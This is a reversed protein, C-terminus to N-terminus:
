KHKSLLADIDDGVNKSLSATGKTLNKPDVRTMMGHTQIDIIRKLFPIDAALQKPTMSDPIYRAAEEIQQQQPAYGKALVAAIHGRLDAMVQTWKLAEPSNQEKLKIYPTNLFQVNYRPFEKSTEAALDLVDKTSQAYRALVQPPGAEEMRSKAQAGSKGGALEFEAQNPNYNPDKILAQALAKAAPGRAKIMSNPLPNEKRQMAAVLADTEDKTLTNAMASSAPKDLGILFKNLVPDGVEFGKKRIEPYNDLLEKTAITFNKQKDLESAQQGKLNLAEIARNTAEKSINEKSIQNLKENFIDKPIGKPFAEQLPMPQAPGVAGSPLPRGPVTAPLGLAIAQQPDVFNAAQERRKQAIGVAAASISKALAAWPDNEGSQAILRVTENALNSNPQFPAFYEPM